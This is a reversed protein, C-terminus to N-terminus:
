GNAYQVRKKAFYLPCLLPQRQPFLSLRLFKPASHCPAGPLLKECWCDDSCFEKRFFSDQQQSSQQSNTSFGAARFGTQMEASYHATSKGAPRRFLESNQTKLLSAPFKEVIRASTEWANSVFEGCSGASSLYPLLCTVGPGVHLGRPLTELPSSFFLPSGQLDSLTIHLTSQLFRCRLRGVSPLSYRV